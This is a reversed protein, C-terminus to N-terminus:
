DLRSMMTDIYVKVQEIMISLDDDYPNLLYVKNEKMGTYTSHIQPNGLDGSRVIHLHFYQPSSDQDRIVIENFDSIGPDCNINAQGIEPNLYVNFSDYSYHPNENYMNCYTAKDGNQLIFNKLSEFNEVSLKQTIDRYENSQVITRGDNIWNGNQNTRIVFHYLQADIYGDCEVSYEDGDKIIQFTSAIMTDLDWYTECTSKIQNYVQSDISDIPPFNFGEKRNLGRDTECSAFLVISILILQILNCNKM